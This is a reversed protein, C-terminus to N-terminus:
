PTDNNKIISYYYLLAPIYLAATSARAGMRPLRMEVRSMWLVM